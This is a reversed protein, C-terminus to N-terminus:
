DLYSHLFRCVVSPVMFIQGYVKCLSSSTQNLVTGSFPFGLNTFFAGEMREIVASHHNEDNMRLSTFGDGLERRTSDLGDDVDVVAGPSRADLPSDHYFHKSDFRVDLM